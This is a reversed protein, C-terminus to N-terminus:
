RVTPSSGPKARRRSPALIDHAMAVCDAYSPNFDITAIQDFQPKLVAARAQIGHLFAAGHRRMFPLAAAVADPELTAVACLDFLDRATARDGRHHFKKALIEASTEVRIHRGAHPVLEFPVSTLSTGVVIDIEGAALNLKIFEAHEEYDSTISEAVDSM